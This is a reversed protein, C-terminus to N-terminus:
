VRDMSIQLFSGSHVQSLWLAILRICGLKDFARSAIAICCIYIYIYSNMGADALYMMTASSLCLVVM